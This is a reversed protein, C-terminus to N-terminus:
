GIGLRTSREVARAVIEESGPVDGGRMLVKGAVVTTDVVSGSAAYVLDSRLDGLSLEPSGARLLLFDAPGDVRLAAGGLLSASAGTAIDWAEDAPLVTPDGAAHRQALAFLKLDALLDLSDNSGPGDTGLGVAVGAERAAPYPFVGGVALKMNAVPNTVVTCGRAAILELEERDLWVGHALVTCESLMGLRDLYVAPRVGHREVCEKVEQETESLHIHAAVEREAATEATWRLLEESVTYIAHPALAGAVHPGFGDLEDLNDVATERMAATNGDTDFLPGGITARLGSDEVARATAGPHWYMDWFRATGSRIMELCALRAGWYVDEPELKAEVPWVVERLWRMLPLDGGYGRFLTMAAHTHGNVLPVVLPAGAADITEDGPEPEVGAGLAVITGAECRLGVTEGDLVAGTVALPPTETM